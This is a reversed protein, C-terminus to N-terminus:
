DNKLELALNYVENKHKKFIATTLDVSQKLPLQKMMITLAEKIILDEESDNLNHKPEIVLVFEGKQNNANSKFKILIDSLTDKYLTEFIKTLERAIFVEHSGGYIEELMELTKVIKHPSVLFITPCDKTSTEHLVKKCKNDTNPLFGHFQFHTSQIGSVSFATIISSPGPIPIVKIKEDLAANVLYAGPDSIAPTGADSVYAISEGGHIKKILSNSKSKENHQHLSSLKKKIGYHALLGGTHRTDECAILDVNKLIEIARITIDDLNGIPTAVLYLASIM